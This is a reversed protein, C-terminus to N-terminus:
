KCGKLEEFSRLVAVLDGSIAARDARELVGELMLAGFRGVPGLGRYVTLLERVRAQERPYADGVTDPHSFPSSEGSPNPSPTRDM